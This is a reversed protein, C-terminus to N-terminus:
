KTPAPLLLKEKKVELIGIAALMLKSILYVGVIQGVVPLALLSLLMVIKAAKLGTMKASLFIFKKKSIEKKQYKKFLGYVAFSAALITLPPSTEIIQSVASEDMETLKNLFSNTDITLEKDVIGTSPLGLKVAMEENVKISGESGPYKKFWSYVHEENITTKLQIWNQEGTATNVTLVDYQPNNTDKPLFAFVTDGDENEAKVYKLEHAIGKINNAAGMLSETGKAATTKAFEIASDLDTIKNSSRIMAELIVYEEETVLKEGGRLKSIVSIVALEDINKQIFEKASPKYNAMEKKAEETKKKIEEKTFNKKADKRAQKFFNKLDKKTLTKGQTKSVFYFDMVKGISYTLVFVLPITTIAGLFPLITKYLGIATQQALYALGIVGLIEKYIESMSFKYGRAEAILKGMYLQIPVLIFIDAFPIPQVAWAACIASFRRLLKEVKEEPPINLQNIGYTNDKIFKLPDM